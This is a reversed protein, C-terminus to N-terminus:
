TAQSSERTHPPYIPPYLVNPIRARYVADVFEQRYELPTAAGYEDQLAPSTPFDRRRGLHRSTCRHQAGPQFHRPSGAQGPRRCKASTSIRFWLAQDIGRPKPTTHRIILLPPFTIALISHASRSDRSTRDEPTLTVPRAHDLDHLLVILKSLRVM